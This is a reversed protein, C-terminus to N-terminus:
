IIYAYVDQYTYKATYVVTHACANVYAYTGGSQPTRVLAANSIRACVCAYSCYVSVRVYKPKERRKCLLECLRALTQILSIPTQSYVCLIDIHQSSNHSIVDSDFSCHVIAGVLYYHLLKYNKHNRRRM